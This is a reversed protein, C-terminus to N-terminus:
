RYSRLKYTGNWTAGAGVATARYRLGCRCWDSRCLWQSLSLRSRSSPSDIGNARDSGRLIHPRVTAQTIILIWRVGKFVSEHILEHEV